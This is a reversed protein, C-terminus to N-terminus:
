AENGNRRSVYYRWLRVYYEFRKPEHEPNPVDYDFHKLFAEIQEEVTM